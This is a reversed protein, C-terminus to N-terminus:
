KNTTTVRLLLDDSFSPIEIGKKNGTHMFKEQKIVRGDIPDVWKLAYNGQPLPMSWQDVQVPKTKLFYVLYDKGKVGLGHISIEDPLEQRYNNDLPIAKIFDFSNITKALINLQDRVEKGSQRKGLLNRGMGTADDNAYSWDLNNYVAGGEMIFAWAERRRDPANQGDSTEDFSVPLNWKYNDTVTKPPFAYHFNLVSVNSDMKEIKYYTNAYNQAVLHKKPLKQETEKIVNGILKQWEDTEPLFQQVKISAEVEPIGKIWYPENCLEFYINDFANLETVIKRVMAKQRAALKENKPLHTENYAVEEIGNINSQANLPSNKWLAPGYNASFLVVEVIVNKKAALACFEKLREFYKEDWKDLDFKNGGNIYGASDSRAWPAILKGFRVAMTNQNDGETSKLAPAFDLANGEVYSGVFIRTLNFNNKQLVGVYTKYDFASNIVAGYHEASTILVLPKGKYSFYHPNQPSLSIPQSFVFASLLVTFALLYLKLM